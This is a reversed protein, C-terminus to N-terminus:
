KDSLSIIGTWEGSHGDIIKLYGKTLKSQPLSLLIEKALELEVKEFAELFKNWLKLKSDDFLKNTTFVSIPRDKGVVKIKALEITPIRSAIADQTAESFLIDTGFQKNAGELRSALNAADGIVTYNFREASGFNGVSVVGTHLGIRLYVDAGFEAQFEPRMRALEEQCEISAKVAKLAHDQIELPANWFAVIADGVYKDVTGGNKLIISTMSSLFKNLFVVLTTPDMKESISTFGAIDCFFITLERKDGGLKLIDPNGIIKDIVEPSVYYKFAKKIFRSQAGELRYQEAVSLLIAAISAIFPVVLEVWYGSIAFAYACAILSTISLTSLILQFRFNSSFFISSSCFIILVLSFILNYGISVQKIFNRNLLNDLTAANIEVGPAKANLPTPRLDLLGPASMGVFVYSDKFEQPSIQPALGSELRNISSYISAFSYKEFSQKQEPFRLILENQSNAPLQPFPLGLNAANYLAFPLSLIPSSEFISGAFGYRFIGDSDNKSSVDGLAAASQLIQSIPLTISKVESRSLLPLEELKLSQKLTEQKKQFLELRNEDRVTESGLLAAAIVVPLKGRLSEAFINDEEVSYHSDESFIIDFAVGKAQGLELFNVIRSYLSRPWPWFISEEKAFYELSAQDLMIIKIDARAQTSKALEALRWDWTRKELDEFINTYLLGFSILACLSITTFFSKLKRILLPRNTEM